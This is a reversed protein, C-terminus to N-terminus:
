RAPRNKVVLTELALEQAAATVSIALARMSARRSM